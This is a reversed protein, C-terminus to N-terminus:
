PDELGGPKASCQQSKSFGFRVDSHAKTRQKGSGSGWNGGYAIIQLAKM